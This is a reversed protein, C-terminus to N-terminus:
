PRALMRTTLIRFADEVGEGTKASTRVIEWGRHELPRLIGDGIEWHDQLDLKNVLLVFPVDGVLDIITARLVMATDLTYLRTGDIVLFYGSTGHLYSARVKQLEDEGHLDWLILQAEEEGSIVTRKDIKVGITSHYREDFISHVYRRVLSTKGVAFSGLMCIKKKIM